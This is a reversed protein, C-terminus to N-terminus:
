CRRATTSGASASPPHGPRDGGAGAGRAALRRLAAAAPRRGTLLPPTALGLHLAGKPLRERLGHVEHLRPRGGHRPAQGRRPGRVNSTCTATCHGCGECADTVLIRSPSLRDALSFLAGYPCGFTCFGKAGLVYVTAFGCTLFTAIAMAAGPFTAWFDTTMMRNSFGPPVPGPGPTWARRLTPYLFMYFMLVFPGFALLRSRFPRPRIGVRRLMWACLDQLAVLHCGWGCFFRGFALTGLLAAAFFLCGANIYGLELTYMAESPEVPSFTRGAALYHAIHAAILLHVALLV